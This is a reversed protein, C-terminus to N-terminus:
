GLLPQSESPREVSLVKLVLLSVDGNGRSLVQSGAKAPM